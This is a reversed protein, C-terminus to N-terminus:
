LYAELGAIDGNSAFTGTADSCLLRVGLGPGPFPHRWVLSKPIGLEEGLMRVEDKYLDALPELLLGQAM